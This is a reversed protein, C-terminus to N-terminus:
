AEANVAMALFLALLFLLAVFGLGMRLARWASPAYRYNADTTRARLHPLFAYFKRFNLFPLLLMNALTPSGIQKWLAPEQRRLEKFFGLLAHLYYLVLLLCAPLLLLISTALIEAM